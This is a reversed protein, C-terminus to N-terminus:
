QPASTAPRVPHRRHILGHRAGYNWACVSSIGVIRAVHAAGLKWDAGTVADWKPNRPRGQRMPIGAAAKWKYATTRSVGAQRAIQATTQSLDINEPTLRM